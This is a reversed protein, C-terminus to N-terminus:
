HKDGAAGVATAGGRPPTSQFLSAKYQALSEVDDGGRAPAHISIFAPSYRTFINATAGGRPPTSQFLVWTGALEPLEQDGGRAPAHISIVGELAKEYARATAGGRPPTSQFKSAGM